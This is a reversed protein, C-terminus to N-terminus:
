GETFCVQDSYDASRIWDCNDPRESYRTSAKEYHPNEVILLKNINKTTTKTKTITTQWEEEGGEGERQSTKHQKKQKKNKQLYVM